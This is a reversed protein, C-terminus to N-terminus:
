NNFYKKKATLERRPVIFHDFYDSTCILKFFIMYIYFHLCLYCVKIAFNQPLYGKFNRRCIEHEKCNCM